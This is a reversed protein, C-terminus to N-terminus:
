MRFGRHAEPVEQGTENNEGHIEPTSNNYQASNGLCVHVAETIKGPKFPITKINGGDFYSSYFHFIREDVVILVCLYDKSRQSIMKATSAVSKKGTEYEIAIKRGEVYAVLDPGHANDIIITKIGSANLEEFIKRIMVEHEISSSRNGNMIWHETRGGQKIDLKQMNLAQAGENNEVMVPKKAFMQKISLSPHGTNVKTPVARPTLIVSPERIACSLVMAENQKLSRLMRKIEEARESIGSSLLSALYNVEQPERPYFTIFTSANAIIEKPLRSAMHTVIITGVGYKRGEEVLKKLIQSDSDNIIFQAEDIIVYLSVGREKEKTKMNLYLRRLLETIYITQAEESRLLALSISSVCHVLESVNFSSNASPQYALSALKGRMHLLSNRESVSKSNNVFIGIEAIIDALTPTKPIQTDSRSMAGCKRYSYWLCESLKITQIYGLSYVKRFIASLETIREGVSSGELSFINLGSSAADVVKGGLSKITDGHENHADFVIASRGYRAIDAMMHRLLTSKGQGSMGLMVLHPNPENSPVITAPGRKRKWAFGRFSIIRGGNNRFIITPALGYRFKGLNFAFKETKAFPNKSSIKSILKRIANTIYNM